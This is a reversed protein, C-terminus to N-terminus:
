LDPFLRMMMYVLLGFMAAATTISALRRWRERAKFALYTNYITLLLAGGALIALTVETEGGTLYALITTASTIVSLVTLFFIGDGSSELKSIATGLRRHSGCALCWHNCGWSLLLNFFARHSRVGSCHCRWSSGRACQSTLRDAHPDNLEELGCRVFEWVVWAAIRAHLNLRRVCEGGTPIDM